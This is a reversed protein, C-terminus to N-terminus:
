GKLSKEPPMSSNKKSTVAKKAKPSKKTAAALKKKNEANEFDWYFRHIEYSDDQYALDRIDSKIDDKQHELMAMLIETQVNNYGEPIWHKRNLYALAIYQADIEVDNNYESYSFMKDNAKDARDEENVNVRLFLNQIYEANVTDMVRGSDTTVKFSIDSNGLKKASTKRYKYPYSSEWSSPSNAPLRNCKKMRGYIQELANPSDNKTNLAAHFIIAHEMEHALMGAALESAEKPSLKYYYNNKLSKKSNELAFRLSREGLNEFDELKLHKDGSLDGQKIFDIAAKQPMMAIKGNSILLMTPFTEKNILITNNTWNYQASVLRERNIPTTNKNAFYYFKPEKITALKISPKNIKMNSFFDKYRQRTSMWEWAADGKKSIEKGLENYYADDFTVKEIPTKPRNAVPKSNSSKNTKKTGEFSVSNNASKIFVDHSLATSFNNKGFNLSFNNNKNQTKQLSQSNTRFNSTININNISLM